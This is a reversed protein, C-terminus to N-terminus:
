FGCYTQLDAKMERDQVKIVLTIIEM